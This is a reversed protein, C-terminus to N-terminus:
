LTDAKKSIKIHSNVFSEFDDISEFQDVIDTLKGINFSVPRNKFKKLTNDINGFNVFSKSDESLPKNSPLAVRFERQNKFKSSKIFTLALNSNVNNKIMYSFMKWKNNTYIVDSAFVKCNSIKKAARKIRKIFEHIDTIWFLKKYHNKDNNFEKKLENFFNQRNKKNMLDYVSIKTLCLINANASFNILNNESDFDKLNLINYKSNNGKKLAIVINDRILNQNNTTITGEEIDGITKNGENREIENFRCLSNLYIEGKNIFNDAYEKDVLRIYFGTSNNILNFIEIEKNIYNKM